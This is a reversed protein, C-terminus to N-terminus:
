GRGRVESRRGAGTTWARRPTLRSTLRGALPEADDTLGAAALGGQQPDEGPEVLGRGAADLTSPVSMAPSGPAGAATGRPLPQLQDELVRHAREVRPHTHAVDDGFGQDCLAMRRVPSRTARAARPPRAARRPPRGSGAGTRRRDAGACRADGAGQRGAGRMRTASSGTLARSTDTRAWTSLRTVSRTSPARGSGPTRRARGTPRGGRRRGRRPSARRGSRRSRCWRRPRRAGGCGYVWRSTEAIGVSGRANDPAVVESRSAVFPSSLTFNGAPSGIPADQTSGGDVAGTM